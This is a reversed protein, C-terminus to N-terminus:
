LSKEMIFFNDEITVHYNQNYFSVRTINAHKTKALESFFKFCERKTLNSLLIKSNEYINYM